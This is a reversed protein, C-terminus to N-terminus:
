KLSIMHPNRNKFIAYETINLYHMLKLLEDYKYAINITDHADSGITFLKGGLEKYRAIIQKSPNPANLKHYGSTNLELAIDHKIIFKLIDDIISKFDEYRYAVPKHPNYRLIYDLHGLSDFIDCDTINEYVADFYRRICETETSDCWYEGYYPDIDDVLHTSGIVFDWRDDSLLLSYKQRLNQKLGLEIGYLIEINEGYLEKCKNVLAFYESTDFIFSLDYNVPFELDMHETFTITKLGKSIAAEVMNKMPTESDSSIATHLHCDSIIM